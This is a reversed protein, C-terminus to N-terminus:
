PPLSSTAYTPPRPTENLTSSPGAIGQLQDLTTTAIDLMESLSDSFSLLAAHHNLLQHLLRLARDILTMAQKAYDNEIAV